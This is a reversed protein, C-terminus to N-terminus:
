LNESTVLELKKPILLNESFKSLDEVGRVEQEQLPLKIIHFDSYLDEIEALYKSQIRRRAACMRCKFEEAKDPYLLQNVIVNHTDIKLKCLEQILRETEYVSLFEAICVCVFTTKEPDKFQASIQQIAPYIDDVKQSINSDVESMGFM